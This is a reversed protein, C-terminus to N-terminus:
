DAQNRPHRLAAEEVIGPRKPKREKVKAAGAMVAMCAVFENATMRISEGPSKEAADTM